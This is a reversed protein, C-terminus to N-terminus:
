GTPRRGSQPTPGAAPGVARGARAARARGRPTAAGVALSRQRMRSPRAQEPDAPAPVPPPGHEIAAEHETGHEDSASPLHAAAAIVRSAAPARGPSRRGERSALGIALSALGVALTADRTALNTPGPLVGLPGPGAAEAAFLVAVIAGFALTANARDDGEFGWTISLAVVGFLGILADLLPTTAFTRGPAGIVSQPFFGFIGGALLALGALLMWAHALWARPFSGTTDATPRVSAVPSTGATGTADGGMADGMGAPRGAAGATM